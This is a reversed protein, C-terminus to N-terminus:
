YTFHLPAPLAGDPKTAISAIPLLSQLQHQKTFAQVLAAGREDGRSRCAEILSRNIQYFATAGHRADLIEAVEIDELLRLGADIGGGASLAQMVAIYTDLRLPEGRAQMEGLLGLACEWEGARGCALIAGNYAIADPAVRARRM